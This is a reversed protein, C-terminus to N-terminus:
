YWVTIILSPEKLKGDWMGVTSTSFKIEIDPHGELWDNITQDLYEVGQESLRCHFTRIRVAGTQNVHSQRKYSHAVISPGASIQHIKSKPPETTTTAPKEEAELALPTDDVKPRPPLTPMPAIGPSHTGHSPAPAHPLPAHPLPAHPGPPSIGPQPRLSIGGAPAPPRLTPAATPNMPNGMAPQGLRGENMVDELNSKAWIGFSNDDLAYWIGSFFRNLIRRM